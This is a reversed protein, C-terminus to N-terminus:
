EKLRGRGLALAQVALETRAKPGIQLRLAKLSDLGVEQAEVDPRGEKWYFFM